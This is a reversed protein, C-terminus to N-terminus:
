LPFRVPVYCGLLIFLRVGDTTPKRRLAESFAIYAFKRSVRNASTGEIFHEYNSNESTRPLLRRRMGGNRHRYPHPLAV